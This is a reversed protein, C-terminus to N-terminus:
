GILVDSSIDWPSFVVVFFSSSVGHKEREREREFVFFLVVVVFFM